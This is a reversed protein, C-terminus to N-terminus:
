KERVWTQFLLDKDNGKKEEKLKFGETNFSDYYVDGEYEKQILTLYIVDVYEKLLEFIQVGGTVMIEEEKNKENLSLVDELTTMTVGEYNLKSNRTLVYTERNPLPFGISDYTERGMINKKNITKKKYFQLDEKYHWPLGNKSEKKGVLKNKDMALIISLM